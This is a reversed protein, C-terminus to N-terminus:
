SLISFLLLDYFIIITCDNSTTTQQWIFYMEAAMVQFLPLELKM